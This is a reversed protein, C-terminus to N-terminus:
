FVNSVVVSGYLQSALLSHLFSVKKRSMIPIFSIGRERIVALVIKFFEEGFFYIFLVNFDGYLMMSSCFTKYYNKLVVTVFFFTVVDFWGIELRGVVRLKGRGPSNPTTLRRLLAKTPADWRSCFDRLLIQPPQFEAMFRLRLMFYFNRFSGYFQYM